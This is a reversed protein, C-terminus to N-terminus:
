RRIRPDLLPYLLDTILNVVVFVFGAVLIVGQVIPFDREQIAQVALRGVGPRAFLSEVVVTGSLLGAVQLGVITVVPVIANPLVHRLVVRARGIGKARATRVFDQGLVELMSGRTIRALVAAAPLALTVTPLVLAAPGANGVVPLLHWTLGFLLILLIGSWFTPMSLGALATTMVGVDISRRSIAAVVGVGVGFVVALVTASLALAVTSGARSIIEDYVSQGSRISTGLNGHLANGIFSLYQQQLSRDLGLQHRMQAVTEPTATSGLAITVPDGPVLHIMAFAFLSVAFLTAISQAFRRLLFSFSRM